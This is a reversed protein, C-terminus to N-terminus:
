YTSTFIQCPNLESGTPPMFYDRTLFLDYPISCHLSFDDRRVEVKHVFKQLTKQKPGFDSCLLDDTWEILVAEVVSKDVKLAGRKLQNHLQELEREIQKLENERKNLRPGVSQGEELRDLLNEIFRKVKNAEQQKLEIKEQISDTNGLLQNVEEVLDNVYSPVLLFSCIIEIVKDELKDASVQKSECSSRDVKKQNCLYFRWFRQRGPRTNQSGHMKNKCYFCECLGSLLYSGKGAKFSKQTAARAHQQAQVKQFTDPDTLPPVYSQYVRGGYVLEGLYIRNRFFSAYCSGFTPSNFLKCVNQIDTYSAKEARMQWALQGAEWTSPDPIIRQVVRPTGNNRVLGLDIKETTFCTPPRGPFIGLYNGNEDKAEIILKLGRKSDRSIDELQKQANLRLISKVVHGFENDPINDAIFIVRYGRRELDSEYYMSDVQNRAFRKMDWCLIAEVQPKKERHALDIMAQFNERNETSSGPRAADEFLRLLLLKHFKCYELLYARQSALDQTEGGSDRLYAWVPSGSPLNCPPFHAM